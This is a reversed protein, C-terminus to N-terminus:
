ARMGIRNFYCAVIFLDLCEDFKHFRDAYLFEDSRALNGDRPLNGFLLQLTLISPSQPAKYNVRKYFISALNKEGFSHSNLAMLLARPFYIKRLELFFM